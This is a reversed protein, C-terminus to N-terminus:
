IGRAMFLGEIKSTVAAAALRPGRETVRPADASPGTSTSTAALTAFDEWPRQGEDFPAAGCVQPVTKWKRWVSFREFGVPMKIPQALHGELWHAIENIAAETVFAALIVVTAVRASYEHGSEAKREAEAATYADRLLASYFLSFPVFRPERSAIDSM